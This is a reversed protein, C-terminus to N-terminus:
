RPPATRGPDLATTAGQARVCRSGGANHTARRSRDRDGRGSAIGGPTSGGSVGGLTRPSSWPWCPASRTRVGWPPGPPSVGPDDSPGSQGRARGRGRTAAGSVWRHRRGPREAVHPEHRWGRCVQRLEAASRQDPARGAPRARQQGAAGAGQPTKPALGRRPLDALLRRRRTTM